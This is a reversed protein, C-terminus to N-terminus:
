RQQELEHQKTKLARRLAVKRNFQPETRLKRELSAVERELKGVEKIRDAVESMAEGPRVEIETLPELLAAYLAPLSIATPLPHRDVDAAIWDTSFYRSIKPSNSGPQKHAAVMRVQEDGSINRALEFVIPSPIVKDIAALVHESVDEDKADIRFVQIEPVSENDPLHITPEALKFAWTIRAVDSVFRERTSTSVTGQEYFREKPIRRGFKAAEPWCYLVDRM